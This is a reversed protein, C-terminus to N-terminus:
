KGEKKEIVSETVEPSTTVTFIKGQVDNPFLNRCQLVHVDGHTSVYTNGNEFITIKVGFEDIEKVNMTNKEGM